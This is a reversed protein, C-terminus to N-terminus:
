GVKMTGTANSLQFLRPEKPLEEGEKVHPYEGRGGLASWFEEPESGEEVAAVGHGALKVSCGCWMWV